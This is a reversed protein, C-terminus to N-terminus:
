SRRGPWRPRCRPSMAPSTSRATSIRAAGARARLEDVFWEYGQSPPAASRWTVPRGATRLLAVAELAVDVGKRPSLRSVLVIRGPGSGGRRGRGPDPVGNPVVRSGGPSGRPPVRAAGPQTHATRSWRTRWCAAARLATKRHRAPVAGRGRPRARAGAGRGAPRRADVVSDDGHQRLRRRAGDARIRGVLRALEVPLRAMVCCRRGPRLLAKRLVPFPAVDVHPAAGAAASRAAPRPEPLALTSTGGPRGAARPDVRADAPGLRVRGRVPARRTSPADDAGGREAAFAARPEARLPLGDRLGTGGVCGNRCSGPSHGLPDAPRRCTTSRTANPEQCRHSM